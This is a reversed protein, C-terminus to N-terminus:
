GLLRELVIEKVLDDPLFKVLDRYKAVKGHGDEKLKLSRLIARQCFPDGQQVHVQAEEPSHIMFYNQSGRYIVSEILSHYIYNEFYDKDNHQYAQLGKLAAKFGMLEVEVSSDQAIYMRYFKVFGAGYGRYHIIEKIDNFEKNNMQKYEKQYYHIFIRM